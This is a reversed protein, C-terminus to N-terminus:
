AAGRMAVAGSRPLSRWLRAGTGSATRARRVREWQPREGLRWQRQPPRGERLADLDSWDNEAAMEPVLKDLTAVIGQRPGRETRGAECLTWYEYAEGAARKRNRRLVHGADEGVKM